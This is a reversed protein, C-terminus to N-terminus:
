ELKQGTIAASNIGTTRMPVAPAVPTIPATAHKKEKDESLIPCLFREYVFEAGRFQPLMLWLVLATKILYYFPCWYLLIDSFYELMNAFGIVCWYVLWQTDDHIDDSEIAKFSAIAPYIWAIMNTLFQAGLNFFIMMFITFVTGIVVYAKPLGTRRQIENAYEYNSLEADIRSVYHDTKQKLKNM